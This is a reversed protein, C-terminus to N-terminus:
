RFSLRMINIKEHVLSLFYAGKGFTNSAKLIFRSTNLVQGKQTFSNVKVNLILNIIYKNIKMYTLFVCLSKM